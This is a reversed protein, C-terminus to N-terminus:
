IKKKCDDFGLGVSTTRREGCLEVADLVILTVDIHWTAVSFLM